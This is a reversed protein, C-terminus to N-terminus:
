SCYKVLLTEFFNISTCQFDAVWMSSTQTLDLADCATGWCHGDLVKLTRFSMCTWEFTCLRVSCFKTHRRDGHSTNSRTAIPRESKSLTFTPASDSVSERPQVELEQAGGKSILKCSVIQMHLFKKILSQGKLTLTKSQYVSNHTKLSM